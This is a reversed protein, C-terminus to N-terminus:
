PTFHSLATQLTSLSTIEGQERKLFGRIHFGFPAGQWMFEEWDQARIDPCGGQQFTTTTYYDRRKPIYCQHDPFFMEVMKSTRLPTVKDDPLIADVRPIYVPQVNEVKIHPDAGFRDYIYQGTDRAAGILNRLMRDDSIATQLRRLLFRYAAAKNGEEISIRHYRRWFKGIIPKPNSELDPLFNLEHRNVQELDIFMCHVCPFYRYKRYWRPHWPVGFFALKHKAMYDLITKIWDTKVIFFDPDLILLYRTNVHKVAENLATGHHYSGIYSGEIPPPEVRPLVKFRTEAPDLRDMGDLPTNDVVIWNASQSNLKQTLAWNQEIYDRSQYSVTCITLASM